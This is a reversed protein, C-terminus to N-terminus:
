EVLCWPDHKESVCICLINPSGVLDSRYPKRGFFSTVKAIPHTPCEYLSVSARKDHTSGVTSQYFFMFNFWVDKQKHRVRKYMKTAWNKYSNPNWVNNVKWYSFVKSGNWLKAVSCTNNYIYINRKMNKTLSTQVLDLLNGDCKGDKLYFHINCRQFTAVKKCHIWELEVLWSANYSLWTFIKM